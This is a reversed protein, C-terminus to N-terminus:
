EGATGGKQGGSPSGDGSGPTQKDKVVETVYVEVDRRIIDEVKAAFIPYAQTHDQATQYAGSLQFFLWGEIKLLEV